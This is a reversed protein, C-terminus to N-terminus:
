MLDVTYGVIKGEKDLYEMPPWHGISACVIQKEAWATGSLGVLIACLLLKIKVMMEETFRLPNNRSRNM